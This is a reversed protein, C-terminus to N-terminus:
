KNASLRSKARALIDAANLKGTAVPGAPPASPAASVSEPVSFMDAVGAAEEASIEPADFPAAPAAQRVSAPAAQPPAKRAPQSFARVAEDNEDDDFESDTASAVSTAARRSGLAHLYQPYEQWAFELAERPFAPALLAAQEEFSLVNLHQDWSSIESTLWTGARDLDPGDLAIQKGNFTDHVFAFHTFASRRDPPPYGVVYQSNAPGRAYKPCFFTEQGHEGIGLVKQQGSSFSEPLITLLKAPGLSLMDGCLFEGTEPDRAKLASFVSQLASYKLGIIRANKKPDDLLANLVIQGRDDVSVASASIFLIKEPKTLSGIHSQMVKPKQLLESFLRGIGPTEKNKWAVNYLLNYPNERIDKNPDGDHAIFCV